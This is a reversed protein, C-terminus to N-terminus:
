KGRYDCIAQPLAALLDLADLSVEGVRARALDGACGHLHVALCTAEFPAFGQGLLATVMGALVDGTGGTAMGPNGTANEYRADGQGVLTRHGKLAICTGPFRELAAALAAERDAQVERTPIELLSALEGPHPTMVTPATRAALKGGCLSWLGDADLVLPRAEGYLQRVLTATERHRGLGPGVLLHSARQALIPDLAFLSLTGADTEPAPLTMACTLKAGLVLQLSQPCIVTVLGAGCRLAGRAALFAAGSLGRSGAVLSLRGYDGKHSAAARAPWAPLEPRIM